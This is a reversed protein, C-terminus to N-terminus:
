RGRRPRNNGTWDTGRAVHQAFRFLNPRNRIRASFGPAAQIRVYWRRERSGGGTRLLIEMVALLRLFSEGVAQTVAACLKDGDCYRRELIRDSLGCIGARLLAAAPIRAVWVTQGFSFISPLERLM